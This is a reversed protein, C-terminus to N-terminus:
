ASVAGLRALMASAGMQQWQMYLSENLLQINPNTGRELEAYVEAAQYFCQLLAKSAQANTLTNELQEKLFRMYWHIKEDAPVDEAVSIAQALSIEGNALRHLSTRFDQWLTIRGQQSWEKARLPEGSTAKLLESGDPIKEAELWASAEHMSPRPLEILQCRSQLTPMIRAHQDVALIILSQGPPEELTKLLANAASTNLCNAPYVIALKWNAVQTTHSFQRVLERVADIKIVKSPEEPQLRMLDPHTGAAFLQCSKCQGCAVGGVAQSCLAASALSLAAEQLGDGRRGRMLIAHPM